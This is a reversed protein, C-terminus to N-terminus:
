IIIKKKHFARLRKCSNELAAHADKLAGTEKAMAINEPLRCYELFNFASIIESHVEALEDEWSIEFM